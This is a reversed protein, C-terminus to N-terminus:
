RHHNSRICSSSIQTVYPMRLHTQQKGREMDAHTPDASIRVKSGISKMESVRDRRRDAEDDADRELEDHEEVQGEEVDPSGWRLITDGSM